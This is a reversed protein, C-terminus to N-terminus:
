DRGRNRLRMVQMFHDTFFVRKGDRTQCSVGEPVHREVTHPEGGVDGVCLCSESAKSKDDVVM